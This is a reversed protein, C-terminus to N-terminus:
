CHLLEQSILNKYISHALPDQLLEAPFGETGHLIQKDCASMGEIQRVLNTYIQDPSPAEAGVTCQM